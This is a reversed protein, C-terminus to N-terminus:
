TGREWPLMPGPHVYYLAVLGCIVLAAEARVWALGFAAAYALQGTLNRRVLAELRGKSM